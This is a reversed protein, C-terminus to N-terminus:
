PMLGALLVGNEWKVGWRVVRDTSGYGLAKKHPMTAFLIVGLALADIHLPPAVVLPIEGSLHSSAPIPVLHRIPKPPLISQSPAVQIPFM